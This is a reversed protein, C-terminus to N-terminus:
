TRRTRGPVNRRLFTDFIAEVDAGFPQGTAPDRGGTLQELETLERDHNREIQRDLRARLVARQLVFGAAASGILVIALVGFVRLRFGPRGRRDTKVRVMTAAAAGAQMMMMM